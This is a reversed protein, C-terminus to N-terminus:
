GELIDCYSRAVEEGAFWALANMVAQTDETQTYIAEAIDGESFKNGQFCNFGAILAFAGGDGIDEALQKAMDVILKRFKKAFKVTDVYYVFGHFGGDIGHNAVDQASEVFSEWGGFQKVTARILKEDLHSNNIFEKLTKM